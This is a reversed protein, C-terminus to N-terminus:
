DLEKKEEADKKGGKCNPCLNWIAMSPVQEETEGYGVVESGCGWCLYAVLVKSM